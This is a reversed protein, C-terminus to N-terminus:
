SMNVIIYFTEAPNHTEALNDLEQLFLKTNAIHRKEEVTPKRRLSKAMEDWRKKAIEQLYTM